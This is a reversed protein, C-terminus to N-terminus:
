PKVSTIPTARHNSLGLSERPTLTARYRPIKADECRVRSFKLLVEVDSGEIEPFRTKQSTLKLLTANCPKTATMSVSFIPSTSSDESRYILIRDLLASRNLQLGSMDQAPDLSGSFEILNIAIAQFTGQFQDLMTAMAGELTSVQIFQSLSSFCPLIIEIETPSRSQCSSFALIHLKTYAGAM